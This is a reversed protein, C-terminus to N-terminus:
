LKLKIKLAKLKRNKKTPIFGFKLTSTFLFIAKVSVQHINILSGDDIGFSLACLGLILDFDFMSLLNALPHAAAVQVLVARWVGSARVACWSGM